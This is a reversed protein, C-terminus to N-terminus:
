RNGLPLCYRLFIIANWWRHLIPRLMGCKRGLPGILFRFTGLLATRCFIPQHRFVTRKKYNLSDSEACESLFIGM